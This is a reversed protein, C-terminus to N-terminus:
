HVKEPNNRMTNWESMPIEPSGYRNNCRIAILRQLEDHMNGAHVIVDQENNAQKLHLNKIQVMETTLGSEQSEVQYGTGECPMHRNNVQKARVNWQDDRVEKESTCSRWGLSEHTQINTDDTYHDVAYPHRASADSGSSQRSQGSGLRPRPQEAQVKAM